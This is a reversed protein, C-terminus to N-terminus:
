NNTADSESMAYRRRLDRYLAVNSKMPAIVDAPDPEVFGSVVEDWTVGDGEALRDAHCARLAAGLTATNATKCPYVECGFVNAMVQLIGRNASAGGTAVIRDVGHASLAASHNAMAMMQAEVVARVNAPADHEDLDFRRVGGAAVHPTIEPEFWPLMLAGNNGPPTSDLADTFSSWDLGYQDRVRERALSGNRFCLLNMFDGTPSRFVHSAGFHQERTCAFVTDSTGLSIVVQGEQVTGTGILSCPNDGSWAVVRAAPFGHRARWYPALTGAVTWSPGLAPLRSELGDATAALADRSWEGRVLDMLNMGSGDGFDIPADDGALLSALFSSVLHIRETKAYASPQRQFFKRIQPGTFREFARSGTLRATAEAGGLAHEIERCEKTTSEDMWVPAGARAFTGAIQPALATNAHLGQWVSVAVDNLYVSGHQQASGSVARIQSVDLAPSAAIAAMMRDLAAAWMLPPAYVERPDRGRLVGARTKYAPFERDFNLSHQYVVRRVDGDVEIVIASFSQTSCDLGVFLAM